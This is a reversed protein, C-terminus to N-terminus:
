HKRPDKTFKPTHEWLHTILCVIDVLIVASLAAKYNFGKGFIGTLADLFSIQALTILIVILGYGLFNGVRKM